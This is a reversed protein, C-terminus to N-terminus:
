APRCNLSRPSASSMASVVVCWKSLSGCSLAQRQGHGLHDVQQLLRDGVPADTGSCGGRDAGGCTSLVETVRGGGSEHVGAYGHRRGGPPGTRKGSIARRRFADNQASHHAGRQRGGPWISRSVSLAQEDARDRFRFSGLDVPRLEASSLAHPVETSRRNSAGRPLPTMPTTTQPQARFVEGAVVM